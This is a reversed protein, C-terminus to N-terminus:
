RTNQQKKKCRKLTKKKQKNTNKNHNKRIFRVKVPMKGLLDLIYFCILPIFHCRIIKKFKDKSFVFM